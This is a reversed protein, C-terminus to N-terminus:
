QRGPMSHLSEDNEDDSDDMFGEELDRGLRVQDVGAFSRRAELAERRSASLNMEAMNEGEEDFISISDNNDPRNHDRSEDDDDDDDDVLSTMSSRRMFRPVLRQRWSATPLFFQMLSDAIRERIPLTQASIASIPLYNAYRQRYRRFFPLLIYSLLLYIILSISAPIILTKFMDFSSGM